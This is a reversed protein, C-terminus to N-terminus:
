DARLRFYQQSGINPNTVTNLGNVIAPASSSGVWSLPSALNTTSQLSFGGPSAPWKLLVNTGDPVIALVPLPVSLRFVTGYGSNGGVEATGYLANGFLSVGRPIAGDSNTTSPGSTQPFQYLMVYGTANTRVSYITGRDAAGGSSTSGYIRDGSLVIPGYPTGRVPAAFSALNTFGTGNTNM